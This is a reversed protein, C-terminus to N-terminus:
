TCTAGAAMPRSSFITCAHMAAFLSVYCPRAPQLERRSDPPTVLAAGGSTFGPARVSPAGRARTRLLTVPRALGARLRKAWSSHSAAIEAAAAERAEVLELGHRGYAAALVDASPVPPADDRALVSVLVTAEAGPRLLQAIGALVADDRGLAGHLRPGWPFHITV